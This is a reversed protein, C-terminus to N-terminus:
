TTAKVHEIQKIEGKRVELLESHFEKILHERLDQILPNIKNILKEAITKQEDTAIRLHTMLFCGLYIALLLRRDKPHFTKMVAEAEKLCGCEILGIVCWFIFMDKDEPSFLKLNVFDQVEPLNDALINCAVADRGFMYYRLFRSLPYSTDEGHFIWEKTSSLTEIVWRVLSVKERVKVLYCAQLALGVTVASQFLEGETRKGLSKILNELAVNDDPHEGFYFVIAKQWWEDSIISQLIDSATIGRGAFFEQILLHRFEVQDGVFHFLGSRYLMEDVLQDINTQKLGRDELEFSFIKKCEAIGISTVRRRHMEYALKQLLFDKLPAHYQQALGKSSDWRGLMMETYKKFLETINAPIDSKAYDSIAVFVTILLPNLDMGHVEQLRRLMEKITEKSLSKGSHVRKIIKDTQEWNIPSLRYNRYTALETHERVFSYDRSTLIVKCLPYQGNFEKLSILVHKREEDNAIEDLADVLIVIKGRILDDVAFCPKGSNSIIKTELTCVDIIKQRDKSIDVARIFIPIEVDEDREAALSKEAISYALRRLATSKGSGAEGLILFLSEKRSLIGNIPMQEFVPVKSVQGRITQIKHTIRSLHMSVYMEDTVVSLTKDPLVDSLVLPEKPNALSDKLKRLYPFKSADIGLWLEPYSDDIHPILDDKDWFTIRPDKVEDLIYDRARDNISGSACLIAYNPYLAMKTSTITVKTSLATKLQTVAEILNSTATRSLNINGKKTQVVYLVTMGLPDSNLFVADKGEEHPGCLDRGDKLGKRLFFPRVVEDRFRDESLSM